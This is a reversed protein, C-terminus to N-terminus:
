RLNAVIVNTNHRESKLYTEGDSGPPGLSDAYLADDGSVIRVGAEAAVTEATRPPLASETFIVKVQQAKIQAVLQTIRESSLEAQSDFTPLISGVSQLGYEEVYYGLSDHNSVFKKDVLVSISARIDRALGDLQAQYTSELRRYVDAREPNAQVLARVINAVMLKANVTSHWIHPDPESGPGGPRRPQVGTSADVVVGRREGPDITRELWDDLGLGNRMVIDAGAIATIDAATPEYDHPDVGPGVIGTVDVFDGGVVRAFDALLPTTAVLRVKAVPPETPTTTPSDGGGCGSLAVGLTCAAVLSILLRRM